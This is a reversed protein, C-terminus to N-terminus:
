RGKLKLKARFILQANTPPRRVHRNILAVLPCHALLAQLLQGYLLGFGLLAGVQNPVRLLRVQSQLHLRGARLGPLADVAAVTPRAPQVKATGIGNAEGVGTVHRGLRHEGDGLAAIGGGFLLGLAAGAGEGLQGLAVDLLVGLLV